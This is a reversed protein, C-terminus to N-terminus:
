HSGHWAHMRQQVSQPLMGMLEAHLQHWGGVSGTHDPQHASVTRGTWVWLGIVVMLATLVGASAKKM